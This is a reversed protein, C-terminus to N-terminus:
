STPGDTGSLTHLLGIFEAGAKEVPGRNCIASVPVDAPLAYPARALRREIDQRTERARAALREAIIELLATVHLVHVRPFLAALPGVAARSLNAVVSVGSAIQDSVHATIGYSLGHAEWHLVFAGAAKMDAFREATVAVHDEGGADAPRTIYRQPFAFRPDGERAARAHAILTDKGAGSPGVVAFFTGTM